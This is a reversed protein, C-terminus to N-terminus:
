RRWGYRGWGAHRYAYARPYWSGGVFVRGPYVPPRYVYGPAVAVYPLPAALYPRPQVVAYGYPLPAVPVVAYGYPRSVVPGVTVGFAVQAEAKPSALLAAAFALALLPLAMRKMM